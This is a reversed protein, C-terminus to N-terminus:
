HQWSKADEAVRKSVAEYKKISTWRGFKIVKLSRLFPGLDGTAAITDDLLIYHDAGSQTVVRDGEQYLVFLVGDLPADEWAGDASSFVAGDDYYIAWRTL